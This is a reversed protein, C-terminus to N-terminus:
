EVPHSTWRKDDFFLEAVEGFRAHRVHSLSYPGFDLHFEVVMKTCYLIGRGGFPLRGIRMTFRSKPGVGLVGTVPLGPVSRAIWVLMRRLTGHRAPGVVVLRTSTM